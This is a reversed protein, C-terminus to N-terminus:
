APLQFGISAGGGVRNAAFVTGKHAEVVDRVIALGLGSGPRSRANVARYFRDFLHPLDGEAIGPGRDLVEVRGAQVTVEIPADSDSAFKAANDILNTIARELALPRATVVSADAVVLVVKGTRRQTRAAVHQVLRGLQVESEPEDGRRETALEVVENVLLTLEKAEGDLDDLVRSRAEPTLADYRRLVSINTRLSTLPTRLEHGADQVLRQQDQKSRALASLMGNFAVGLRGTEDEGSVPVTVDLDGTAAVQEAVGTLHVLRRTVQRAVLWGLLSAAAAGALTAVITRTRLTALLRQNESLDRAAQVVVGRGASATLMRYPAHDGPLRLDRQIGKGTFPETTLAWEDKTPTFIPESKDALIQGDALLQVTIQSVAYPNGVIQDEPNPGHHVGENQVKDIAREVSAQLSKGIEVNLGDATAHYSWLGIAVTCAAALLALALALKTRLNM